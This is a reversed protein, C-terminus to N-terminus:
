AFLMIMVLTFILGFTSGLITLLIKLISKPLKGIKGTQGNILVTIDENKKSKTKIFYVPLLCYNFMENSYITDSDLSIVSDCKHKRLIGSKIDRKAIEQASKFCDIFLKNHNELMYGNLFDEEFKVASAYQFPSIAELDLQDLNSNAEIALNKYNKSFTGEVRKQETIRKSEGDKNKITRSYEFVGDYYTTTSFDFVFANIYAGNIDTEKINKFIKRNSFLSRKLKNHLKKLAEDKGFSFPIISDIYLLKLKRLKSITTNGCYPCLGKFHNKSILVSAGCSKCKINQLVDELKDNEVIENQSFPKKQFTVDYFIPQTTGCSECVTGKVSPVFNIKGGCNKCKNM